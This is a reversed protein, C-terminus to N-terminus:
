DTSDGLAEGEAAVDSKATHLALKTALNIVQAFAGPFAQAFKAVTHDAHANYYRRHPRRDTAARYFVEALDASTAGSTTLFRDFLNIFGSTLQRYPSDTTLNTRAHQMAIASWNSETGAPEVVVSRLGFQRIESDLTDSWVNLAHKSVYYWGGLPSYMDGGISSNNIIRGYGQRRM